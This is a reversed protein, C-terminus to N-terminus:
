EAATHWLDNLRLYTFRSSLRFERKKILIAESYLQQFLQFDMIRHSITPKHNSKMQIRIKHRPSSQESKGIGSLLAWDAWTPVLYIRYSDNGWLISLAINPFSQATASMTKMAKTCLITIKVAFIGSNQTIKRENPTNM